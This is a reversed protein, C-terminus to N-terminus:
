ERKWEEKILAIFQKKKMIYTILSYLKELEEYFPNLIDTESSSGLVNVKNFYAVYDIFEISQLDLYQM